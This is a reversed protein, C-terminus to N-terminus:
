VFLVKECDKTLNEIEKQIETLRTLIERAEKDLPNDLCIDQLAKIKDEQDSCWLLTSHISENMIKNM